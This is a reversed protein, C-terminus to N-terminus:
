LDIGYKKGYKELISNFQSRSSEVRSVAKEANLATIINDYDRKESQLREQETYPLGMEKRELMDFVRLTDYFGLQMRFSISRGGFDLTGDLLEGINKSPRIEIIEKARSALYLDYEYDMGCMVIILNECEAEEILPRIPVNDTLGGDLMNEGDVNVTPYIAPLASSALLVQIIKERDLDNLCYYREEMSDLYKDINPKIDGVKEPFVLKEQAVSTNVYTKVSSFKFKDFDVDKSIIEMLGDRNFGIGPNESVSFVDKVTINKWIKEANEYDGVAFLVGNLAGVSAGSVATIDFNKGLHKLAKWVGIEYAGKGGGGSFCLGYKKMNVEVHVRLVYFVSNHKGSGTM